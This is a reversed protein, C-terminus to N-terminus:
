KIAGAGPQGKTLHWLLVGGARIPPRQMLAQVFTVLEPRAGPGIVIADAGWYALEQRFEARVAPTVPPAATGQEIHILTVAVPLPGPGGVYAEGGPGPGIFYGGPMQFSMDAATQWALPLTQTGDPYPLVLITSGAPIWRRTDSFFAPAAQAATTSNPRPLLPVVCVVALVAGLVLAATRGAALLWDLGIALLGAAALGVVLAFRDPLASGFVPWHELLGWPLHVNTLRGNVLLPDGLSFVAFILGTGLLMRANRDTIRAVGVALAVLLLPIGLYALYEAPGGGYHAAFATSGRTSLWFMHSPVYFGRLDAEYFSLTFPTGHQHLPGWFQLWLPGACIALFVCLAIGLGRAVRPLAPRTVAWSQTVIVVAGAVVAALGTQFLIEESTFLQAAAALGLAAGGTLVSRRGAALDYILVLMLSMLETLVLNIHGMGATLVAPSFGFLLAGLAAAWDNAAFRRFLPLACVPGAALGLLLMLNYAALPGALATVPALLMAPLLLSTNWMGNVGAPANMTAFHLPNRGHAVSWPGHQLYWAFLRVDDPNGAVMRGGLGGLVHWNLYGSVALSVAAVTLYLRVASSNIQTRWWGTITGPATAAPSASSGLM